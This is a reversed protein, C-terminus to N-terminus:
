SHRGHWVQMIDSLLSDSTHGLWRSHRGIARRRIISNRHTGIRLIGEVIGVMTELPLRSTSSDSLLTVPHRSGLIQVSRQHLVRFIRPRTSTGEFPCSCTLALYMMLWLLTVDRLGVLMVEISCADVLRRWTQVSEARSLERMSDLFVHRLAAGSNTEDPTFPFNVWADCWDALGDMIEHSRPDLSALAAHPSGTRLDALLIQRDLSEPENQHSDLNQVVHSEDDELEVIRPSQCLAMQTTISNTAAAVQRQPKNKPKCNKDNISWKKYRDRLMKVSRVPDTLSHVFSPPITPLPFSM